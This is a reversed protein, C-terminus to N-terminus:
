KAVLEELPASILLLFYRVNKFSIRVVAVSRQKPVVFTNRRFVSELIRHLTKIRVKRWYKLSFLNWDEKMNSLLLQPLWCHQNRKFKSNRTKFSSIVFQFYPFNILHVPDWERCSYIHLKMKIYEEGQNARSNLVLRYTKSIMSQTHTSIEFENKKDSWRCMRFSSRSTVCKNFLILCFYLLIVTILISRCNGNSFIRTSNHSFEILFLKETM